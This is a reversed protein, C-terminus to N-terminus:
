SAPPNKLLCTVLLPLLEVIILLHLQFKYLLTFLDFFHYFEKASFKEHFSYGKEDNDFAIEFTNGIPNIKYHSHSISDRIARIDTTWGKGKKVKHRVSCIMNIDYHKLNYRNVANELQKRIHYEIKETRGVHSNLVAMISATQHTRIGKLDSVVSEALSDAEEIEKWNDIIIQQPAYGIDKPDAKMKKIIEFYLNLFASLQVTTEPNAQALQYALDIIPQIDSEKLFPSSAQSIRLELQRLLITWDLPVKDPFKDNLSEMFDALASLRNAAANKAEDFSFETVKKPM